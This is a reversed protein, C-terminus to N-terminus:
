GATIKRVFEEEPNFLLVHFHEVAHVSKLSGWNKFWIKQEVEGFTKQVFDEIVEKTAPSM